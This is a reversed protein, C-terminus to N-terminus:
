IQLQNKHSTCVIVVLYKPSLQEVSKSSIKQDATFNRAGINFSATLYPDWCTDVYDATHDCQLHLGLFLHTSWTFSSQAVRCSVSVSASLSALSLDPQLDSIWQVKPTTAAQARQGVTMTTLVLSNSSSVVNKDNLLLWQLNIWLVIDETICTYKTCNDIM